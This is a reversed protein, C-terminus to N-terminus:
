IVEVEIADAEEKRLAVKLYNLKVKFTNKALTYELIKVKAGRIFGLSLLRSRLPENAKVKTIIAEQNLKLEHLKM